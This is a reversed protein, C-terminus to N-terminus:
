FQIITIRAGIMTPTEYYLFLIDFTRVDNTKCNRGREDNTLPHM